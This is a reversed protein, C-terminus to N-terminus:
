SLIDGRRALANLLEILPLGLIAFYDGQVTAFLRSGPGELAYGGTTTLLDPGAEALYRDLFAESFARMTLHAEAVHRWVPVGHDYLAAATLLQHTQGRLELLRARAAAPDEPKGLIRGQFALVQDCGLVLAQPARAAIKLAKHEALADAVDRPGAGEAELSARLADEDIRAPQATVEIGARRLLQARIPSASALILPRM